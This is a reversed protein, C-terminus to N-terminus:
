FDMADFAEVTVAPCTSFSIGTLKSLKVSLRMAQENGPLEVIFLLDQAGLMAYMGKMTGNFQKVLKVAEETRSASISNVAEKSYTGFMLYLEM